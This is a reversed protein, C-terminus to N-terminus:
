PVLIELIKSLVIQATSPTPVPTPPIGTTPVLTAGGVSDQHVHAKFVTVLDNYKGQLENFATELKSYRVANDSDGNLELPSAPNIGVKIYGVKAGKADTSYLSIEGDLGEPELNDDCAIGIKWDNGIEIILVKSGVQPATDVGAINIWEIEQLDTSDTVEVFMTRVNTESDKYPGIISPAKLTGFKMIGVVRREVM